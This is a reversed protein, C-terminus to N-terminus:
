ALPPLVRADWWPDHYLTRITTAAAPYVNLYSTTEWPDRDLLRLQKIITPPGDLYEVVREGVTLGNL